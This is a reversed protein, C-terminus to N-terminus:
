PQLGNLGGDHERRNAPPRGSLNIGFHAFVRILLLTAIAEDLNGVVPLNDPIFEVVGVGINSLYLVSIAGLGAM